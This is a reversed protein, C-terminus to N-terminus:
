ANLEWSSARLWDTFKADPLPRSIHYGQVADCGLQTLMDWAQADEVGEAVVRFGLNHGLDIISRVIIADNGGQAMDVLFSKDIKLTNIPLRKLYALSSYGTGFDDVAVGVGLGHLQALVEAGRGLDGMLTDETIEIELCDGDVGAQELAWQIREILRPNQFSRASVNVSVPMHIGDDRWTKCQRLATVLVWSTIPAMLGIQEAIPLFHAPRVLGQQPHQWRLLAEVGCIQKDQMGVKPQYHLEFENRDLAHRLQGSFRLQRANDTQGDADYFSYHGDSRKARYMAVDAHGLLENVEDGHEPYVAIGVSANLFLERDGCRFPHEFCSLVKAAVREGAREGSPVAPMLIAFEDGGLRALTDSDRLAARLRTAVQRLVDDGVLHGLEDNIMKFHDLDLLMLVVERGEERRSSALAQNVRDYWLTRNALGTLEDTTAQHELVGLANHTETIDEILGDIRQVRRRGSRAPTFRLSCWREQEGSLMVRAQVEAAEGEMALQWAAGVKERDDAHIREFCPIPDQRDPTCLERLSPSSYLVEHSRVDYSWLILPINGLLDEVRDYATQAEDRATEAQTRLSDWYGQLMLGMDLFVRKILASELSKRDVPDIEPLTHILTHLHNLYLRYAGMVWVPKVGICFHRQGVEAVGDDHEVNLLQLMQQLQSRVLDGINGGNREYAYLVDATAPNDFLFNYYDQAFGAAGQALLQHYTRLVQADGNGIQLVYHFEKRLERAALQSM